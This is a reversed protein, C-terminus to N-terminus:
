SAVRFPMGGGRIWGSKCIYAGRQCIPWFLSPALLSDKVIGNDVTKVFGNVFAKVVNVLANVVSKVVSRIANVVAKDVTEPQSFALQTTISCCSPPTFYNYIHLLHGSGKSAARAQRKGPAEPKKHM